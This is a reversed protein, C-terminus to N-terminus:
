KTDMFTYFMPLLVKHLHLYYVVSEQNLRHSSNQNVSFRCKDPMQWEGRIGTLQSDVMTEFRVKQTEKLCKVEAEHM